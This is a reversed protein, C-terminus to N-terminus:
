SGNKRSVGKHCSATRKELCYRQETYYLTIPFLRSLRPIRPLELPISIDALKEFRAFNQRTM